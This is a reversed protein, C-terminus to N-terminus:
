SLPLDPGVELQGLMKYNVKSSIVNYKNLYPRWIVHLHNCQFKGDFHNM